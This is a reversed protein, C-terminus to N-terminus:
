ATLIRLLEQQHDDLLAAVARPSMTPSCYKEAFEQLDQRRDLAQQHRLAQSEDVFFQLDATQWGSVARVAAGARAQMNAMTM